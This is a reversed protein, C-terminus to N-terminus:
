NPLRCHNLHALASRPYGQEADHNDKTTAALAHGGSQRRLPLPTTLRHRALRHLHSRILDVKQRRLYTVARNSSLALHTVLHLELHDLQDVRRDPRLLSPLSASPLSVSPLPM